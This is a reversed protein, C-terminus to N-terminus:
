KIYGLLEEFKDYGAELNLHGGGPIVIEKAGLQVALSHLFEQPIYPDNDAYVCIIKNTYKKVEKLLDDSVYFTSNVKNHLDEEDHAFFGNFGSVLILKDIKVKEDLLYKIACASGTSHGILITESNIMQYEKYIDLLKKWEIYNQREIEIPFQPIVCLTNESDVKQKFWPFWNEINSGMFGQIIFINKM